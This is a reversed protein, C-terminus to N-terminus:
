EEGLRRIFFWSCLLMPVSLGLYIPWWHSNWRVQFVGDSGFLYLVLGFLLFTSGALSLILSGLWARQLEHKSLPTVEVPEEVDIDQEIEPVEAVAKMKSAALQEQLSDKVVENSSSTRYAPIPIATEDEPKVLKYPTASHPEQMKPSVM